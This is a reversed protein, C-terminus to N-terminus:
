HIDFIQHSLPYQHTNFSLRSPFENGRYNTVHFGHLLSAAFGPGAEGVEEPEEPEEPEGPEEGDDELLITANHIALAGLMLVLKGGNEVYGCFTVQLGRIIVCVSTGMILCNSMWFKLCVKEPVKTLELKFSVKSLILGCSGGQLASWLGWLLTVLTVGDFCSGVLLVCFVWFDDLKELTAKCVHSQVQVTPSLRFCSVSRFKDQQRGSLAWWDEGYLYILCVCATFINYICYVYVIYMRLFGCSVYLISYVICMIYVNIYMCNAICLSAYNIKPKNWASTKCATMFYILPMLQFQQDCSLASAIGQEMWMQSGPSSSFILSYGVTDWKKFSKGAAPVHPSYLVTAHKKSKFHLYWFDLITNGNWKGFRCRLQLHHWPHTHSCSRMYGWDRGGRPIVRPDDKCQQSNELM